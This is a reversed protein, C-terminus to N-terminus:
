NSDVKPHKSNHMHMLNDCDRRLANVRNGLMESERARVELNSPSLIDRFTSISTQTASDKQQLVDIDATLDAIKKSLSDVSESLVKIQQKAVVLSAIIAVGMGLLQLVLKVDISGDM